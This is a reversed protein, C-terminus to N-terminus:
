GKEGGGELINWVKTAALRPTPRMHEGNEGDTFRCAEVYDCNACACEQQARYYPDAAISGRRLEAAMSRLTDAIHRELIGLREASVLADGQPVGNKFKVPIYKPDEGHEMANIVGPDDLILGSRKIKGSREKELAEDSLRTGSSIM